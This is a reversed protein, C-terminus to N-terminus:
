GNPGAVRVGDGAGDAYQDFNERFLYALRLAAQDYAQPDRWTRRPILISSAVGPCATIMDLGFIPDREVPARDLAGSSIARLM